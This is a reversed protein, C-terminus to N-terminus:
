STAWDHRDLAAFAARAADRVLASRAADLPNYQGPATRNIALAALIFVSRSLSCAM